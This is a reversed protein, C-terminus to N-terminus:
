EEKKDFKTDDSKFKKYSKIQLILKYINYGIVGTLFISFVYGLITM